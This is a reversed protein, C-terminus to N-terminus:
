ESLDGQIDNLGPDIGVMNADIDDVLGDIEHIQSEIQTLSIEPLDSSPPTNSPKWPGFVWVAAGIAILILAILIILTWRKRSADEDPLSSSALPVGWGTPVGPVTPPAAPPLVPTPPLPPPTVPQTQPQPAQNPEM